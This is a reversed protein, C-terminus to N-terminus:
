VDSAIKLALAKRTHIGLKEVIHEAHTSVTYPSIDLQWAIQRNSLGRALLLSIEAERPTLGYTDILWARSPLTPVLQELEVITACRPDYAKAVLVSRLLYNTRSTKIKHQGVGRTRFPTTKSPRRSVDMTSAALMRM